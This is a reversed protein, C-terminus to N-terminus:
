TFERSRERPNINAALTGQFKGTGADKVNFTTIKGKAARVFGHYV